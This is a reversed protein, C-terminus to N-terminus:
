VGLAIFSDAAARATDRGVARRALQLAQPLSSGGRLEGHLALMFPVTALDDVPVVSAVVGASGLSILVSVLGILEDDGSPAGVASNCSSLVVRHPARGLRELDYVTLPGDDLQLASFFPSDARFTGHAAIHALWAGDLASMVREATATGDALVVAEPYQQALRRVEEAGTSLQPGGVLVVRAGSPPVTRRARLWTAASPVVTIPRERLSPLLGWPVAHLRGTPVVVVPGDHLLAVARGLLDAELRASIADLDLPHRDNRRTAQRRLAFLTHALSFDARATPGVHHLRLMGRGAVVAYLQGDVDTLEVLDAGDLRDLLEGGRFPDMEGVATGPTQLVHQRVAAELRRRERHLIATAHEAHDGTELRRALSRLAALDAVLRGDRQPHVPPVALVTARGRESWALFLQPDDRRVACRLAMRVLEARQATALVRLETSGVTQLSLDLSRLGHDCASLMARWRGDLHCLTAQALWAAARTGTRPGKHHAPAAARLQSRAEDLRDRALALQGALLRADVAHEPSLEGLESAVRRARRLLPASRDERAFRCQLLVLETRAAWRPRHQRRFLRLADLCRREAIDPEGAQYAALAASHLLEARRTASGRLGEIRAVARDAEALADRSLGAALLVACTNVSLEPEFVGLEDVRHQADEFHALATPLDGRAFAAAGREQRVSAFELQQGTQAYLAECRAYDRDALDIAGTALHAMARHNYARALWVLEGSRRLLVVARRADDLAEANRGLLWLVHARRVLHRAAAVGGSGQVVTDLLALGRRPQGAMVLAVGLSAHVDAERGADGARRASRAASRLHTVAEQIDGFDRLVIGAAQHATSAALPSPQRALVDLATALAETPRSLALALLEDLEDKVRGARHPSAPV